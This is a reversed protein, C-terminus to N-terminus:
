NEETAFHLSTHPATFHQRNRAVTFHLSTDHATFEIGPVSPIVVASGVGRWFGAAYFGSRYFGAEYFDKSSAM